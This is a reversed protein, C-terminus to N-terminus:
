PVYIPAETGPQEFYPMLGLLNFVERVKPQFGYVRFPLDKRKAAVLGDVIAGVGTSSVYEVTSLDIEVTYPRGTKAVLEVLFERLHHSCEMDLSGALSIIIRDGDEECRATRGAVSGFHRAFIYATGPSM